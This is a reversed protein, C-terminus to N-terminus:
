LKAAQLPVAVVLYLTCAACVMAVPPVIRRLTAHAAGAKGGVGLHPLLGPLAVATASVWLVVGLPGMMGTAVGHQLGATVQLVLLGVNCWLVQPSLPAEAVEGAGPRLAWLTFGSFAVL